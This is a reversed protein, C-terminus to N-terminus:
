QGRPALRQQDPRAPQDAARALTKADLRRKFIPLINHGRGFVRESGEKMGDMNLAPLARLYAQVARQFVLADILSQTDRRPSTARASHCTPRNTTACPRPASRASWAPPPSCCSM